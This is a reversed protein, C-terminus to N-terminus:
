AIRLIVQLGIVLATVRYAGSTVDVLRINVLLVTIHDRLQHVPLLAQITERFLLSLVILGHALLLM